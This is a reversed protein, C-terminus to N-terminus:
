TSPMLLKKYLFQIKKSDSVSLSLSIANTTVGDRTVLDIFSGALITSNTSVCSKFDQPCRQGHPNSEREQYM